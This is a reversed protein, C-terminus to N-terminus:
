HVNGLFVWSAGQMLWQFCVTGQTLRVHLLSCSAGACLGQEFLASLLGLAANIVSFFPHCYLCKGQLAPNSHFEQTDVM